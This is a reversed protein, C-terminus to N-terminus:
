TPFLVETVASVQGGSEKVGGGVAYVRGGLAVGALGHRPTRMAPAATWTDSAPDYCWADPIVGPGGEGGFVYLKGGVVAGALGAAARPMPRLTEWRDAKPDYRDLQASNGGGVRRGGALYFLGAIAAGTASNRALPCPAAASWRRARVDFVQHRAVDGQDTWALNADGKPARGSALHIRDGLTVAVTECQIQPMEPSPSWTKGDFVLVDRLGVWGGAETVRYGGFAYLRDRASALVPHHRPFPLKPGETWRDTAPDYLGTRDQPNIGGRLGDAGPAMGGAIVVKGRFAAGYVEQVAWPVDARPEWRSAAFAPTAVSALGAALLTRRDM